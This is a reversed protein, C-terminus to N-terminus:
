AFLIESFSSKMSVIPSTDYTWNRAVAQPVKPLNFGFSNESDSSRWGKKLDPARDANAEKHTTSTLAVNSNM